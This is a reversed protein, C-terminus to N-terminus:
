FIWKGDKKILCKKKYFIIIYFYQSSIHNEKYVKGIKLIISTPM